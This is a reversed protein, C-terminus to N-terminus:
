KKCTDATKDASKASNQIDFIINLEKRLNDTSVAAYYKRTTHADDHGLLDAIKAQDVGKSALYSAFTKRFTKLTFINKETIALHKKVRQFRKRVTESNFNKFIRETRDADKLHSLETEIFEKLKDYIPFIIQKNTKSINVVIKGNEMDINGVTLGLVDIPRQGTLLLMMLFKYYSEDREKATQLIDELMKESFFVINKKVRKPIQKKRIPNRLIIEEEVLFNFFIKMYNIYTLMSSNAVKSKLNEIFRAIHESTIDEIKTEPPVVKLFHGLADRFVGQHSESKLNLHERKFIEVFNILTKGTSVIYKKSSILDEIERKIKDAEKENARTAKLYTNKSYRKGEVLYDIYWLDRKKYRTAM